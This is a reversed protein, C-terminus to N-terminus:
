WCELHARAVIASFQTQLNQVHERDRDSLFKSRRPSVGREHHQRLPQPQGTSPSSWDGALLKAIKSDTTMRPDFSM